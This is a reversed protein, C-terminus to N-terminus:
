RPLKYRVILTAGQGSPPEDLIHDGPNMMRKMVECCAPMRHNQGPYGGVERHLDGSTVDIYSKGQQAAAQLLINLQDEFDKATPPM